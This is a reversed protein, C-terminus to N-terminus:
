RWQASCEGHNRKSPNVDPGISWLPIKFTPMDKEASLAERTEPFIKSKRM